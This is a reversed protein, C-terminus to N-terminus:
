LYVGRVFADREAVMSCKGLWNGEDFPNEKIWKEYEECICEDVSIDESKRLADLISVVYKTNVLGGSGLGGKYYYFAGIGFVATKTGKVLPLVGGENKLLVCGEAVAQRAAKAYNKENLEFM